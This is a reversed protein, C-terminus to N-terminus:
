LEDYYPLLTTDGITVVSPKAEIMKSIASKMKTVTIKEIRSIISEYDLLSGSSLYYFGMDQHVKIRKTDLDLLSYKAQSIAKRIDEDNIVKVISRLTGVFSKVAKELTNVPGYVHICFLGMDSYEFNNSLLTTGNSFSKEINGFPSNEYSWKIRSGMGLLYSLLFYEDSLPVFGAPRPFSILFHGIPSKFPIRNEGGYYVSKPSLAANGPSLIDFYEKVLDVLESQNANTALVVINNKVYSKEAYNKVMEVTAYNRENTLLPRGLGRRFALEHLADFGFMTPTFYRKRNEALAYPLVTEDLEYVNYRTKTLVEALLEVFYALDERLFQASLTLYERSIDSFVNGGLLETERVIRLSSRRETNKFAFRQLLHALGPIPEYRSGSRIIISLSTGSGGLDRSIVNVGNAQSLSFKTYENIKSATKQFSRYFLYFRAKPFTKSHYIAKLLVM